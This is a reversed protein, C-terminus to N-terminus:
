RTFPKTESPALEIKVDSHLRIEDVDNLVRVELDELRFQLRAFYLRDVRHLKIM